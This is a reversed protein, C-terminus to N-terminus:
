SFSLSRKETKADSGSLYIHTRRISFVQNLISVHLLTLGTDEVQDFPSAQRATFLGQLGQLDGSLAYRIAPSRKPIVNYARLMWNWGSPASTGAVEIVKSTM